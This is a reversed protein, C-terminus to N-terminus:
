HSHSAAARHAPLGVRPTHAPTRIGCEACPERVPTVTLVVDAREKCLTPRVRTLRPNLAIRLGPATRIAAACM